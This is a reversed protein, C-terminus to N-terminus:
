IYEFHPGDIFDTGPHQKKYREIAAKMDAVTSGYMDMTEYWNCGWKLRKALGLAKASVSVAIAISPYYDWAKNTIVYEGNVFPVLDMAHGFGDERVQHPSKHTYGDKQTVGRKFLKNQYAATRVQPETLGFDITTIKIAGNLIKLLDPHLGKSNELSRKGLNPM